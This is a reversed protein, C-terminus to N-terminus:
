AICIVATVAAKGRCLQCGLLEAETWASGKLILFVPTDEPSLWEPAM